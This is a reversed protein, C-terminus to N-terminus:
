RPLMLAQLRMKGSVGQSSSAKAPGTSRGAISRGHPPLNLRANRKRRLKELQVLVLLRSDQRQRSYELSEPVLRPPRSRVRQM